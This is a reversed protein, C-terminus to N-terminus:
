RRSHDVDILDAQKIITDAQCHKCQLLTLYIDRPMSTHSLIQTVTQAIAIEFFHHIISIKHTNFFKKLPLPAAVAGRM